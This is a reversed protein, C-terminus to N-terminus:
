GAVRMNATKRPATLQVTLDVSNNPKVYDTFAVESQGDMQDGGSYALKYQPTWTCTGVNQLRWTKTFKDGPSFIAGDPVTVDEKFTAKDTCFDIDPTESPTPTSSPEPTRSAQPTSAQETRTAGQLTASPALRTEVIAQVAQSTLTPAAAHQTAEPAPAPMNCAAIQVALLCLVTFTLFRQSIIKKM